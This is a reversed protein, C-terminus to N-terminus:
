VAAAEPGYCVPGTGVNRLGHSVAHPDEETGPLTDTGCTTAVLAPAARTGAPAVLPM